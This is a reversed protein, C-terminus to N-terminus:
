GKGRTLRGLARLARTATARARRSIPAPRPRRAPRREPDEVYEILPTAVRRWRHEAAVEALPERYAERGRELVTAVAAAAAEVDGPAVAAGLGRQEVLEGLEDGGTCVVPLGSWFCDLVRTRFSFRTELHDLHLSLGCGAALLWSAREAYPVWVDNFFVVTDLLGLREARRRAATAAEAQRPDTPPRGMFVLRAQPRRAIVLAIAEVAALPDLWNWLGGNWLVLEDDPALGRLRAGPGEGGAAEPPEDPLGFPVVDILSRLAPDARYVPPAIMGGALMAGLWLDRQRESACLFFDGSALADMVHDLAVTAWFRQSLRPASSFAELMQLPKPDYMDYVLRAGSRRLVASVVPNQPLALVVDVGQLHRRLGRPEDRHFPVHTVGPPPAGAAPAALVVDATAALARALEYARIANGGM